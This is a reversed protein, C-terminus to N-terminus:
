DVEIRRETRLDVCDAPEPIHLLENVPFRVVTKTSVKIPVRFSKLGANEVMVDLSHFFPKAVRSCANCDGRWPPRFSM